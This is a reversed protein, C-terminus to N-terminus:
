LFCTMLFQGPFGVLNLPFEITLLGWDSKCGNEDMLLLSSSTYLGPSPTRGMGVGSTTKSSLSHHIVGLSLCPDHLALFLLEQWQFLANDSSLVSVARNEMDGKM